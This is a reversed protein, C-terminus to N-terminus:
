SMNLNDPLVMVTYSNLGGLERMRSTVAIFKKYARTPFYKYIPLPSLRSIQEIFDLGAEMFEKHAPNNTTFPNM